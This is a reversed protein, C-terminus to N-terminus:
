KKWSISLGQPSGPLFETRVAPDNRIRELFPKLTFAANRTNHALIAGGRRVKPLVLEYYRLYDPKWADIFVIDFPGELRAVEVLANALRADVVDALGMAEFNRLAAAHREPDIELTILRGGTKRLAMAFWGGSYGASTGIELVRKARLELTLRYFFQGDEPDVSMYRRADKRLSELVARAREESYPEALLSLLLLLIM